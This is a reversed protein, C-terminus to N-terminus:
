PMPRYRCQRFRKRGFHGPDRGRYPGLSMACRRPGHWPPTSTSRCTKSDAPDSMKQRERNWRWRSPLTSARRADLQSLLNLSLCHHRYDPWALPSACASTLYPRGHSVDAGPSRPHSCAIGLFSLSSEALMVFAFDLTAITVLTPAVVPLIHESHHALSNRAWSLPAQVFMRERM